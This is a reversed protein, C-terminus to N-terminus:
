TLFLEARGTGLYAERVEDSARVQEPSGSLLVRGLQLV